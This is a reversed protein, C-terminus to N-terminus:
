ICMGATNLALNKLQFIMLNFQVARLFHRLTCRVTAVSCLTVPRQQQFISNKFKKLCFQKFISYPKIIATLLLPCYAQQNSVHAQNHWLWSHSVPSTLFFLCMRHFFEQPASNQIELSELLNQCSRLPHTPPILTFIMLLQTRHSYLYFSLLGYKRM